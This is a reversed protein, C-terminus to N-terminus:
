FATMPLVMKTAGDQYRRRLLPEPDRRLQGSATSGSGHGVCGMASAHAKGLARLVVRWTARGESARAARPVSAESHRRPGCGGRSRRSGCCARATRPRAGGAGAAPRATPAAETASSSSSSSGAADRTAAYAVSLAAKPAKAARATNAGKGIAVTGDRRPLRSTRAWPPLGLRRYGEVGSTVRVVRVLRARVACPVPQRGDAEECELLHVLVVLVRARLRITGSSRGTPGAARQFAALRQLRAGRPHCARVERHHQRARQELAGGEVRRRHRARGIAWPRGHSPATPQELHGQPWM